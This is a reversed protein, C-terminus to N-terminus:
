FIATSYPPQFLLVAAWFRSNGDFTGCFFNRVAQIKPRTKKLTGTSENSVRSYVEAHCKQREAAIKIKSIIDISAMTFDVGQYIGTPSHLACRREATLTM